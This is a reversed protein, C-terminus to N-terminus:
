HGNLTVRSCRCSKPSGKRPTTGIEQVGSCEQPEKGKALAPLPAFEARKYAGTAPYLTPIACKVLPPRKPYKINLHDTGHAKKKCSDVEQAAVKGDAFSHILCEM